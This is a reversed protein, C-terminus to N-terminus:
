LKTALTWFVGLIAIFTFLFSVAWVMLSIKAEVKYSALDGASTNRYNKSEDILEIEAKIANKYADKWEGLHHAGMWFSAVLIVGFFALWVILINNVIM